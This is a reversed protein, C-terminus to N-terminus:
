GAVPLRSTKVAGIGATNRLSKAYFDFARRGCSARAPLSRTPPRAPTISRSKTGRHRGRAAAPMTRLGDRAITLAAHHSSLEACMM